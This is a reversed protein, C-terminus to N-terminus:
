VAQVHLGVETYGDGRRRRLNNDFTKTWRYYGGKLGVLNTYGADDLAVLADMSYTSGDSCGIQAAPCASLPPSLGILRPEHRATPSGSTSRLSSREAGVMLPTDTNPYKRQVM